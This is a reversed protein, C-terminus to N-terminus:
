SQERWTRLSYKCPTVSSCLTLAGPKRNYAAHSAIIGLRLEFGMLQAQHSLVQACSQVKMAKRQRKNVVGEEHCGCQLERSCTEM